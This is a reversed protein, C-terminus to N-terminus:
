NPEGPGINRYKPSHEMISTPFPLIRFFALVQKLIRLNRDTSLIFIENINTLDKGTEKLIKAKRGSLIIWSFSPVELHPATEENFHPV